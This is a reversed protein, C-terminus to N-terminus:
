GYYQEDNKQIRPYIKELTRKYHSEDDIETWALNEVKLSGINQKESVHTLSDEYHYNSPFTIDREYSSCMERYLEKSIKSIGVLEGLLSPSSLKDKSLCQVRQDKGYVYVEDGSSTKGSLLIANPQSDQLLLDLAREEYILDSELLLFDGDVKEKACFLSHMSGTTEYHPNEPFQVSPFEKLLEDFKEGQFGRVLIIKEFGKKVLLRISRQMLTNGDIVLCGKPIEGIVNRLRIGMGAALIVATKIPKQNM